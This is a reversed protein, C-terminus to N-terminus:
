FFPLLERCTSWPNKEMGENGSKVQQQRTFAEEVGSPMRYGNNKFAEGVANRQPMGSHCMLCSTQYKRGWSPIAQSESSWFLIPLMCLTAISAFTMKRM